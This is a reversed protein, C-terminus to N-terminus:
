PKLASESAAPEVKGPNSDKDTSASESSPEPFDARLKSLKDSRLAAGLDDDAYFDDTTYGRELCARLTKSAEDLDETAAAVVAEFWRDGDRSTSLKAERRAEDVRRARLLSRILRDEFRGRNLPDSLITTRHGLLVDAAKGYEHRLWYVEAKWLALTPENPNNKSHAEVLAELNDADEERAFYQALQDYVAFKPDLEEYAKLGEGQKIRALVLQERLAERQRADEADQLGRALTKAAAAFDQRLLEARGEYYDLEVDNNAGEIIDEAALHDRHAQVLKALNKGDEEALLREALYHFAYAPDTANQYADLPTKAKLHIDLLKNGLALKVKKDKADKLATRIRTAAGQYDNTLLKAEAEWVDLTVASPNSKRHLQVLQELEQGKKEALYLNALQEFTKRRPPIEKYAALGEGMKFRALVRFQRFRDRISETEALSMGQALEKEAEAYQKKFYHASGKYLYVNIDEPHEKEHKTAVALLLDANEEDMLRDAIYAFTAQKDTGARYAHVPKGASVLSEVLRSEFFAKANPNTAAKVLSDFRDEASAFNKRAIDLEAEYYSILQEDSSHKKFQDLVAEASLADDLNLFAQMVEEFFATPDSTKAFRQGIEAKDGDSLVSALGLLCVLSDGDLALGNRYADAADEARGLEALADGMRVYIEADGGLQELAQKSDELSSEYDGLAANCAARLKPLALINPNLTAAAELCRKATKPDDEAFKTQAYLLWRGAELYDPLAADLSQDLVSQAEAFNGEAVQRAAYILQQIPEIDSDARLVTLMAGIHSSARLFSDAIEWDFVRWGKDTKSLWFRVAVPTPTSSLSVRAVVQAQNGNEDIDTTLIKLDKWGGATAEDLLGDGVESAFAIRLATKEAPPVGSFLQQREIEQFMRRHDTLSRLRQADRDKIAVLFRDFLPSIETDAKGAAPSQKKHTEYSDQVSGTTKGGSKADKKGAVPQSTRTSCGCLLLCTILGVMVTLGLNKNAKM